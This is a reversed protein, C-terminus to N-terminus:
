WARKNKSILIRQRAAFTTKNNVERDSGLFSDIRWLINFYFTLWLRIIDFESEQALRIVLIKRVFTWDCVRFPFDMYCVSPLTIKIHIQFFYRTLFQIPNMQNLNSVLIPSNPVRDHCSSPITAHGANRHEMSNTQFVRAASHLLGSM